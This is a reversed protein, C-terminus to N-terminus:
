KKKDPWSFTVLFFAAGSGGIGTGHLSACIGRLAHIRSLPRKEGRGPALRVRRACFFAGPESVPERRGGASATGPLFGL